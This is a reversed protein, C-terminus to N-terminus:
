CYRLVCHPSTIDNRATLSALTVRLGAPRPAPPRTIRHTIDNRAALTVRLGPSQPIPAHSIRHSRPATLPYDNRAGGRLGTSLPIHPCALITIAHASIGRDPPNRTLGPIVSPPVPIGPRAGQPRQGSHCVTARLNRSVSGATAPWLPL